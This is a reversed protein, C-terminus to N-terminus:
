PNCIKFYRLVDAPDPSLNPFLAHRPLLGERTFGCKEMVHWSARHDVHCIASLRRVGLSRALDVMAGLAETAYGQGWEDRVLVYGTVARDRGEFGLGTGGILKGDARSFMLLPGAPWRAWEADSFQLFAETDGVSTHRPWALYKTAEADSAYGDFIAQADTVTPPRMTLRATEVDVIV